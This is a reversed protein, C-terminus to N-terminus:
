CQHVVQKEQLVSRMVALIFLAASGQFVLHYVPVRM